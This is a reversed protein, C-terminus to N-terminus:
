IDELVLDLFYFIPYMIVFDVIADTFVDNVAKINRDVLFFNDILLDFTDLAHKRKDSLLRNPDFHENHLLEVDLINKM